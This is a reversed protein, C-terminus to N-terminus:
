GRPPFLGFIGTQRNIPRPEFCDRCLAKPSRIVLGLLGREFEVVCGDIPKGDEVLRKGCKNCGALIMTECQSDMAERSKNVYRDLIESFENAYM